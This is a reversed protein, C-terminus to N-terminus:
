ALPPLSVVGYQGVTREEVGAPHMQNLLRALRLSRHLHHRDRARGTGV